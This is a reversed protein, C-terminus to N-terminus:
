RRGDGGGPPVIRESPSPNELRCGGQLVEVATFMLQSYVRRSLSHFGCQRGEQFQEDRLDEVGQGSGPLRPTSGELCGRIGRSVTSPGTPQPLDPNTRLESDLGPPWMDQAFSKSM